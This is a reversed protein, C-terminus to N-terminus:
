PQLFLEARHPNLGPVTKRPPSLLWLQSGRSARWSGLLVRDEYYLLYASINIHKIILNILANMQLYDQTLMCYNNRM